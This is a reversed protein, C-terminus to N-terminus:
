QAQAVQQVKIDQHVLVVQVVKHDQIVQQSHVKLDKLVKVVQQVQLVQLVKHLQLADSDQYVLWGQYEKLEKHVLLDMIAQEVKDV